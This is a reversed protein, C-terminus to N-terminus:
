QMALEIAGPPAISRPCARGTPVPRAKERRNRSVELLSSFALGARSGESLSERTLTNSLAFERSLRTQGAERWTRVPFPNVQRALLILLVSTAVITSLALRLGFLEALFGISPPGILFGFYGMTSVTAMAAGPNIGSVKGAASFAQPVVLAFGVGVAAFGTLVSGQGGHILALGLGAAAIMGSLRVITVPGLRTTLWDGFFRSAAMAISFAAYGVAAVGETSGSVQRLFVGSWDAMAGEGVMSCFAIVGLVLLPRPPVEFRRKPRAESHVALMESDRADLLRPFAVLATAGGVLIAIASFHTVPAIGASAVVAGVAAGMLGGVSFLAHFTSMIPQPYEKEVASAQANMAVDVAGHVAGFCFLAAVLLSATPALALVPLAGCYLAACLQTVRHSGFRASTWGALPMAILAGLAMALLALGLSGHSLGRDAQIFPIRSVWTAFLIGNLFFLM